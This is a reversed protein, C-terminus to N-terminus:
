TLFVSSTLFVHTMSKHCYSVCFKLTVHQVNVLRTLSCKKKNFTCHHIYYKISENPFLENFCGNLIADAFFHDCKYIKPLVQGKFFDFVHINM